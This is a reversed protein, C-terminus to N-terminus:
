YRKRTPFINNDTDILLQHQQSFRILEAQSFRLLRNKRGTESFNSPILKADAIWKDVQRTSVQFLDAVQDVTYHRVGERLLANEAKTDELLKLLRPIAAVGDAILQATEPTLTVTNTGM